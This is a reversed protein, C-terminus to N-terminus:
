ELRKQFLKQAPFSFTGAVAGIIWTYRWGVFIGVLVLLVMAITWYRGVFRLLRTTEDVYTGDGELIHPANEIFEAATGAGSCSRFDDSREKAAKAYEKNNLISEVAQRIGGCSDDKLLVGAGTEEARKSVAGQESTQPYLVMPCAMYLSESVSNMGCHTIFVSARSLIELQDVYPYVKVNEPLDGLKGIDMSQGCSIVIEVNMGGLAKICNSYFDPRDNIVTGLSIYVLPKEKNKEPVIDSFISPGVFAYHESFSESFPQFAKSTYVVTDTLNDNQVLSLVGKIHYGYKRMKKLEKSVRPMGFILDAMEAPSHKMYQSSRQNFAFTSTSCVMPIDFKNATLKGWFCVSDTYIVDPKFNKVEEALFSDMNITIRLDQITMETTSIKKMRSEEEESLEPLYEDCSIFVAGTKEIKERLFSFSYFNVRNGRRVLEAAVPLMPNTHGHAPICFFMINKMKNEM